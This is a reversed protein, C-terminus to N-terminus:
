SKFVKTQRVLQYYKDTDLLAAELLQVDAMEKLPEPLLNPDIERQETAQSEIPGTLTMADMKGDIVVLKAMVNSVNEQLKLVEKM